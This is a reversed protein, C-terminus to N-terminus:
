SEHSDGDLERDRPQLIPSSLESSGFFPLHEYRDREIEDLEQQLEETYRDGECVSAVHGCAWLEHVREKHDRLIQVTITLIIVASLCPGHFATIEELIEPHSAVSMFNM